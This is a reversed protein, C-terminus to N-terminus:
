IAIRESRSAPKLLRPDQMWDFSDYLYSEYGVQINWGASASRLLAKCWQLITSRRRDGDSDHAERPLGFTLMDRHWHNSTRDGVPLNITYKVILRQRFSGDSTPSKSATEVRGETDKVFIETRQSGKSWQKYM